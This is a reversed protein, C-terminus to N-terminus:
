HLDVPEDAGASTSVSSLCAHHTYKNSRLFVHNMDQFPEYGIRVLLPAFLLHICSIAGYLLLLKSGRLAFFFNM